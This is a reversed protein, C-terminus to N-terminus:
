QFEVIDIACSADRRWQVAFHDTVLSDCEVPLARKLNHLLQRLNTRAQSERSGPWLTFALRERPQPTDGHLILWAILSQLRNTNVATVPQGAFSIRLNGFLSIRM